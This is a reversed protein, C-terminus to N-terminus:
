GSQPSATFTSPKVPLNNDFRNMFKLAGASPIFSFQMENISFAITGEWVVIKDAGQDILCQAIPCQTEDNPVGREIHRKTVKLKLKGGPFISEIKEAITKNKKMTKM